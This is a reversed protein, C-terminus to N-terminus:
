ELRKPSVLCNAAVVIDLLSIQSYADKIYLHWFLGFEKTDLNSPRPNAEPALSEEM